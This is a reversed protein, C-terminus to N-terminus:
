RWRRARWRRCIAGTSRPRSGARGRRRCWASWSWRPGPACAGRWRPRPWCAPSWAWCCTRRAAAITLLGVVLAAPNAQPLHQALAALTAATSGGAPVAVGLLDKLSHLAILLAAGGTFGRLAAPSIFHALAGLRLAGVALQLAGVLLTVLLVLQIYAPSGMAALPALMAALALSNANTPGSMVHRSSGALAAVICPLVATALGYSPPLGLLAAFAIAQPLVLVAGLLGALADARLTGRDVERVWPGFLKALASTARHITTTTTM